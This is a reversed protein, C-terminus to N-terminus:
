VWATYNPRKSLELLLQRNQNPKSNSNNYSILCQTSPLCFINGLDQTALKCLLRRSFICFTAFFIIELNVNQVKLFDVIFWQKYLDRQHDVSDRGYHKIRTENARKLPSNKKIKIYLFSVTCKLELMVNHANRVLNQVGRTIWSM